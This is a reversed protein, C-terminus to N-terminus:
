ETLEKQGHEEKDDWVKVLNDEKDADMRPCTGNRVVVQLSKMGRCYLESSSPRNIAVTTLAAALKRRRLSRRQLRRSSSVRRKAELRKPLLLVLVM